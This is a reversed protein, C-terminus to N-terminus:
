LDFWEELLKIVDKATERDKVIFYNQRKYFEGDSKFTALMVKPDGFDGFDKDFDRFLFAITAWAGGTRLVLKALQKRLKTGLMSFSASIEDITRGKVGTTKPVFPDKM